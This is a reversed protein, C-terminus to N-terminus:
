TTRGRAYCPPAPASDDVVAACQQAAAQSAACCSMMNNFKSTLMVAPLKVDHGPRHNKASATVEEHARLVAPPSTSDVREVPMKTTTTTTCNSGRQHRAAVAASSARTCCPQWM